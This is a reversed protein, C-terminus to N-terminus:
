QSPNRSQFVWLYSHRKRAHHQTRWRQHPTSGDPHLIFLDRGTLGIEIADNFIDVHAWRQLGSEVQDQCKVWVFGGPKVVRTCERVGDRYLQRIERYGGTGITAEGNYWHDSMLGAPTPTYPPDIVAVDFAGDPYPLDRFDYQRDPVTSIDSGIVDINLGGCKTWFSGNGYTVDAISDGPSAYLRCVHRILDANNGTVISIVPAARRRHAYVRCRDSCYRSRATAPRYRKGCHDCRRRPPAKGNSM